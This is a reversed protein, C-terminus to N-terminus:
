NIVAKEAKNLEEMLKNYEGKIKLYTVRNDNNKTNPILHKDLLTLGRNLYDVIEAYLETKLSSVRETFKNGNKLEIDEVTKVTKYADIKFTIIKEFSAFLLNYEEVTLDDKKTKAVEEMLKLSEEPMDSHYAIRALYVCKAINIDTM